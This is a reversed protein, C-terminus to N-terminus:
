NIEHLFWRAIRQGKCGAPDSTTANNIGCCATRQSGLREVQGRDEGKGPIVAPTISHDSRNARGDNRGDGLERGADGGVDTDQGPIENRMRDEERQRCPKHALQSCLLAPEGPQIGRVGGGTERGPVAQDLRESVLQDPGFAETALGADDADAQVGQRPQYGLMSPFMRSRNLEPEALGDPERGPADVGHRSKGVILERQQQTPSVARGRRTDGVLESM